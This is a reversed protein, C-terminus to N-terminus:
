IYDNELMDSIDFMKFSTNITMKKWNRIFFKFEKISFVLYKLIKYKTLGVYNPVIQSFFAGSDFFFRLPFQHGVLGIAAM